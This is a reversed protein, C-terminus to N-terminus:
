GGNRSGYTGVSHNGTPRSCKSLALLRPHDKKVSEPPDFQFRFGARILPLRRSDDLLSLAGAVAHAIARPQKKGEEQNGGAVYATVTFGKPDLGLKEFPELAIHRRTVTGFKTLCPPQDKSFYSELPEGNVLFKGKTPTLQVCAIAKKKKGGRGAAAPM